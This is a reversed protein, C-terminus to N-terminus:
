AFFEIKEPIKRFFIIKRRRIIRFDELRKTCASFYYPKEQSNQVFAPLSVGRDKQASPGTNECGEAARM